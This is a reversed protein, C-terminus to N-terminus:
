REEDEMLRERDPSPPCSSRPQLARSSTCLMFNVVEEASSPRRGLPSIAASSANIEEM